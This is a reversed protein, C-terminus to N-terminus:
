HVDDWQRRIQRLRRLITISCGLDDFNFFINMLKLFFFPKSKPGRVSRTFSQIATEIPQKLMMIPTATM